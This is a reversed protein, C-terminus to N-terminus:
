ILFHIEPFTTVYVQAEVRQEVVGRSEGRGDGTIFLYVGVRSPHLKAPSETVLVTATVVNCNGSLLSSDGGRKYM